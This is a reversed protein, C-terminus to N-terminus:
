ISTGYGITVVINRAVGKAVLTVNIALSSTVLVNQNPNIVVKYGSLEGDKQMQELPKGALNEFYKVTDVSLTGATADIELPSNLKPLLFTRINRTSKDITRNLEIYAYDSTIAIATHSDNLFSGSIGIHKRLFIYGKTNLANLLTESVSAYTDGNAFAITDLETGSLKFKEIWAISEHVSAKSIAGLVAGTCPVSIALAEFLTNGLNAGDQGIVVSVKNCTNSRLDVLNALELDVMDASYLVSIPKHEEELATVIDQIDSLHGITFATDLMVALQRIKGNTANVLTEIEEFTYAELAPVTEVLVWLEGDPNQRFFESIQYHAVKYKASTSIIGLTEADEISGILHSIGELGSTAPSESYFIMGSVHDENPLTGGVNGSGKIFKVDNLAM